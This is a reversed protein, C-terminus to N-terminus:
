RGASLSASYEVCRGLFTQPAIVNIIVYAILTMAAVTSRKTFGAFNSAVLSFCQALNGNNM